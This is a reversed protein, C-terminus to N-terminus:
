NRKMKKLKMTSIIILIIGIVYTPWFVYSYLQISDFFAKFGYYYKCQLLCLGSFGSISFYIGIILPIVFSIIGIIFLGIWLRRKM